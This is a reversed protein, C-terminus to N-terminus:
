CSQFHFAVDISRVPLSLDGSELILQYITGCRFSFMALLHATHLVLSLTPHLSDREHSLFVLGAARYPQQWAFACLLCAVLYRLSLCAHSSSDAAGFQAVRGQLVKVAALITLQEPLVHEGDSSTLAVAVCAALSLCLSRLLPRSRHSWLLTCRTDLWARHLPPIQNAGPPLFDSTSFLPSAITALSPPPTAMEKRVPKKAEAELAATVAALIDLDGASIADTLGLLSTLESVDM